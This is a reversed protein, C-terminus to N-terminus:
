SGASRCGGRCIAPLEGDDLRPVPFSSSVQPLLDATMEITNQGATLLGAVFEWSRRSFEGVGSWAHNGLLQANASVSMQHDNGAIPDTTGFVLVDLTAASGPVLGPLDVDFQRTDFSPNGAAFAAWFWFDDLPDSTVVTAAFAETEFEASSTFVSPGALASPFGVQTRLCSRAALSASSTLGPRRSSEHWTGRRRLGPGQGAPTWAVQSGSSEIRVQGTSIRQEAAVQTLGFASAIESAPLRVLGPAVGELVVVSTQGRSTKLSAASSAFQGGWSQGVDALLAQAERREM